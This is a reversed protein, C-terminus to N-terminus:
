AQHDDSCCVRLPEPQLLVLLLPQAPGAATMAAASNAKYDVAVTAAHSATGGATMAAANYATDGGTVAVANGATSAAAAAPPPEHEKENFMLLTLGTGGKNPLPHQGFCCSPQTTETPVGPFAMVRM